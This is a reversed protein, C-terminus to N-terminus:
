TAALQKLLKDLSRVQIAANILQLPSFKGGPIGAKQIKERGGKYFNDLIDVVMSKTCLGLCLKMDFRGPRMLAPNIRDPNNTTAIIIRDEASELGDLKQLLYALDIPANAKSKRGQKMAELITKREEGEAYLLMKGWDETEEKKERAPKGSIVDLVCDFEDFVYINNAHYKSDLIQDLQHCTSIEAFNIIFINRNLFNAIASITGTKGTGPPGYLLIGLKNDMPIHSPYLSKTKFKELVHILEAKQDYFLTDFTKKKNIISIAKTDILGSSGMVPLYINKTTSALTNNKNLYQIIQELLVNLLYENYGFGTSVITIDGFGSVYYYGVHGYATVIFPYIYKGGYLLERGNQKTMYSINYQLRIKETISYLDNSTVELKTKIKNKIISNIFTISFVSAKSAMHAVMDDDTNINYPNIYYPAKKIDCPDKSMGYLHYTVCNYWIKWNSSIYYIISSATLMIIGVLANDILRDGTNVWRALFINAITNIYQLFM